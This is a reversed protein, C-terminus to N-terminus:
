FIEARELSFDVLSLGSNFYSYTIFDLDDPTIELHGMLFDKHQTNLSDARNTAYAVSATLFASIKKFM